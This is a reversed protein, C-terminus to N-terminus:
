NKPVAHTQAKAVDHRLFKKKKVEHHKLSRLVYSEYTGVQIVSDDTLLKHAELRKRYLIGTKLAEEGDSSVTM